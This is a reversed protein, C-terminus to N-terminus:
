TAILFLRGVQRPLLQVAVAVGLHRLGIFEVEDGTPLTPYPLNPYPLTALASCLLPYMNHLLLSPLPTAQQYPLVPYPPSLLAPCLLTPCPSCHLASCLCPSTLPYMPPIYHYMNYIKNHSPSPHTHTVQRCPIASVLALELTCVSPM